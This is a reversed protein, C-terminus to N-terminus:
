HASPFPQVLFRAIRWHGDAEHHWSAVYRGTFDAGPQGREGAQQAYTGWQYATDGFVEVADSMSAASQVEYKAVIPVLFAKIADRGHLPAMGPELLEGDPTFMAVQADVPGTRLLTTYQQM